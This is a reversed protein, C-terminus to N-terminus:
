HTFKTIVMPIQDCYRNKAIHYYAQAIEMVRGVERSFLPPILATVDDKTAMIGLSNLQGLAHNITSETPGAKPRLTAQSVTMGLLGHIKQRLDELADANWTVPFELEMEYSNKIAVQAEQSINELM